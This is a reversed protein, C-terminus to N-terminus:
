IYTLSASKRKLGEDELEKALYSIDVTASIISLMKELNEIKPKFDGRKWGGYTQKSVGLQELADKQFMHATGQEFLEIITDSLNEKPM